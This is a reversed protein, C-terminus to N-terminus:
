AISYKKLRYLLTDRTLGLLRAARSRNGDTRDLAQRIIDAELEDLVIGQKPLTYGSERGGNRGQMSRSFMEAPLNTSDVTCDSFLVAMREALNRLERVNGPWDYTRMIKLAAGSFRPRPSGFRRSAERLFRELLLEIDKGGNRLPPLTLPVVNLRYFLDERFRGKRVESNLDRHTAAIVRVDPKRAQVEGVPLCEGSELFRLFKAQTNLPLEAIEDLFLTGGDASRLYGIHDNLAGTFSGKRHGFMLSEALAEPLSACNISVFPGESRDSSLHIGRAILEKGTGSEGCILTTIDTAAIIRAANTIEKLEPSNGLLLEDFVKM